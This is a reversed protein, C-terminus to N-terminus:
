AHSPVLMDALTIAAAAEICPVARPVICPDHRGQIRLKAERMSDLDVSDQQKAISPTPKIATRFILPMGTSLGGVVGGAHNTKHTIEGMSGATIKADEQVEVNVEAGPDRSPPRSSSLIAGMDDQSSGSGRICFADNHESGLMEAATFGAGFEIGRVAPVAFIATALRNEIGGFLPQGIGIPLGIIACEIIGGVSDDQAAADLMARKMSEAVNPDNVPFNGNHHLDSAMVSVPDYPKDLVSHIQAIHAGMHVDWRNLLQLCLAGAFCLPLTMRGSFHGGGRYDQAGFYKEGAYYDVHSPRPITSVQGGSQKYDESHADTNEFLACLPAGCTVGDVLGSVVRLQDTEARATSYANQGGRRRDLFAQVQQLDIDYGAPLGDIVVGLMESHSQGFIQITINEGFNSSM